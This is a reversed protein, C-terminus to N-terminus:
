QRGEQLPRVVAITRTRAILLIKQASCGLAVVAAPQPILIRVLRYLNWAFKLPASM